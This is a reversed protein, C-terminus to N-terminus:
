GPTSALSPSARASTSAAAGKVGHQQEAREVVEGLAVVAERREDFGV